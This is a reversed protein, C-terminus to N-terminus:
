NTRSYTKWRILAEVSLVDGTRLDLQPQYHLEFQGERIAVILDAELNRDEFAEHTQPARDLGKSPTEVSPAPAFSQCPESSIPVESESEETLHAALRRLIKGPVSM